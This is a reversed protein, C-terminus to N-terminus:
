VCEKTYLVNVGDSYIDYYARIVTDKRRGLYLTGRIRGDGLLVMDLRLIHLDHKAALETAVEIIRNM